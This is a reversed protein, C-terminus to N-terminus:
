GSRAAARPVVADDAGFRAWRPPCEVADLQTTTVDHGRGPYTAIRDRPRGCIRARCDVARLPLRLAAIRIRCRFLDNGHGDPSSFQGLFHSGM